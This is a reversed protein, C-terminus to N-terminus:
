PLALADSEETLRDAGEVPTRVNQVLAPSGTMDNDPKPPVADIPEPAKAPAVPKVSEPAGRRNVLSPAEEQCVIPVNVKSRVPVAIVPVRDSM